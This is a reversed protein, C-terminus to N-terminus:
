SKQENWRLFYETTKAGELLGYIACRYGWQLIDPEIAYKLDQAHEKVWRGKDTDLWEGIAIGAGINPDESDGLNFIHFTIRM